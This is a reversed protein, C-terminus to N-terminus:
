RLKFNTKLLSSINKQKLDEEYKELDEGISPLEKFSIGIDSM